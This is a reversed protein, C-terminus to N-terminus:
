WRAAPSSHFNQKERPSPLWASNVAPSRSSMAAPASVMSQHSRAVGRRRGHVCGTGAQAASGHRALSDGVTAVGSRATGGIHALRPKLEHPDGATCLLHEAAIPVLPRGPKGSAELIALCARPLKSTIATAAPNILAM